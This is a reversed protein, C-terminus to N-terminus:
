DMPTILSQTAENYDLRNTTVDELFKQFSGKKKSEMAQHLARVTMSDDESLLALLFHREDVIESDDMNAIYAAAVLTKDEEPPTKIILKGLGTKKESKHNKLWVWVKRYFIDDVISFREKLYDPILNFLILLKDHTYIGFQGYVADYYLTKIAEMLPWSVEMHRHGMKAIMAELHDRLHLELKRNFDEPSEYANVGNQIAGDDNVFYKFFNEVKKWQAIREDLDPSDIALRPAGRRRYVWIRPKENQEYGELADRFEWESGSECPRANRLKCDFSEPLPTGLRSWFIVLVLDCDRPQPLKSRITEQPTLTAEMAVRYASADWSVLELKVLDRFRRESGIQNVVAQALSRELAVDSPSALFIRFSRIKGSIVPIYTQKDAHM